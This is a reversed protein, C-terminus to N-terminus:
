SIEADIYEQNPKGFIAPETAHFSAGLLEITKSGNRDTTFNKNLLENRFHNRIDSIKM